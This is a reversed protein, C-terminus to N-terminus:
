DAKSEPKFGIKKNENWLENWNLAAKRYASERGLIATFTSEVGYKTDNRYKDEGEGKGLVSAVFTAAEQDYHKDDGGEYKYIPAPNPDKRTALAEIRVGGTGGKGATTTFTGKTGRITESVDGVVGDVQVCTNSSLVGNAYEYTIAFHDMIDGLGERKDTLSCIGSARVPPAGMFWNIVDINHINQEVIHDGCLWKFFYWHQVEFDMQSKWDARKGRRDPWIKGQDWASHAMVAQGMGGEDFIKKAARYAKSYHRQLGVVVTLNQMKAKDGAEMVMHCGPVDVALPKEAYVHKKAAVAAKFHEPRFGPPTTLLVADVKSGIVEKYADIGVHTRNADVKFRTAAKDAQTKFYDGVAVIKAEGTQELLQADRTGQGGNGVWGIEVMSNATTGRVSKAEVITFASAATVAATGKVFTRRSVLDQEKKM